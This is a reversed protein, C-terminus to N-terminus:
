FQINQNNEQIADVKKVIPGACGMRIVEPTAPCALKYNDSLGQDSRAANVAERLAFHVSAGLLLPPEGIGKSSYLPRNEGQADKLLTVNFEKPINRIGPVKYNGPGYSSLEGTDKNIMVKENTMLGVGQVFGGEIQGVDIAPNLSKGVDFVIDTRLIQHEGTLCDIEVVTSAAGYSNYNCYQGEGQKQFDYGLERSKYFGSASLSIRSFIAAQVLQEWTAEPMADRLPQLREKLIQCANMVAGGNLDAVFSGGTEVANPVTVTSTESIYVKDVPIELVTAAVQIMKTYLGQGLEIGGHTVLVSGDQYINVLAGAQCMFLMPYGISFVCFSMAVGRKRYRNKSNFEAIAKSTEEFKSQKKCDEWCIPLNFHKLVMGHINKDGEQYLNMERIKNFPIGTHKAIDYMISHIIFTGQPAGFGRFAGNSPLNTLCVRGTGRYNPINFAGEMALMGLEMVFMSIGNNWGANLYLDISLSTIKGEKTFGAKYVAKVPHRKSSTKVDYARTYILRVPRNVKWAAVAAVGSAEITDLAKGGFGGGIRKVRVSVRNFPIGLFHGVDKQCNAAEQTNVFVEVENDERKPVVLASIPEMYLHEQAATQVVGELTIEAEALGKDVDGNTHNAIYPDMSKKEIAEDLTLIAPLEEYEIKVLRAAARAIERTEAIIGGIPQGHFSVEKKAFLPIDHVLPGYDNNGPVDRCDVYDVVGPVALAASPDISVINAHAKTSAVFWMSLENSYNPMDDIFVAEGTTLSKAAAHPIPKWVIEKAEPNPVDYYQAGSSLAATLGFETKEKTSQITETIQKFMKYFFGCALSVKYKLSDAKCGKLEEIIVDCIEPILKDDLTKGKALGSVKDLSCPKEEINGVCFRLTDINGNKDDVKLCMGANVIAYDMGRRFPQKTYLVKENQKNLPIVVSVLIDTSSPANIGNKVYKEYPITKAQNETSVFNLEAGVTLMLTQLDHPGVSMLHGGLTAVNRLQDAGIWRLAELLAAVVSCDKEKTEKLTEQLFEEMQAFTVAAGVTIAQTDQTMRKLEVVQTCCLIEPSPLSNNRIKSGIVTQSGMVITAKPFAKKLELLKTLSVPRLWTYGGGVFMVNKQSFETSKQLENPFIVDQSKDYNELTPKETATKEALEKKEEASQQCLGLGCPCSKKFSELIPRYGTCRCLNGELAREMGEQTPKPNNRFFTYMTMVMGPTCFGCQVGHNEMMNQQIPHLGNRTSGIGEVTTVAMGHLSCLLTLCANGSYHVIKKQHHNYYSVMVTCAGCAGQSCAEKTGTLYLNRRLYQILTVKPDPSDISIKKGNVFFVLASQEEMLKNVYTKYM